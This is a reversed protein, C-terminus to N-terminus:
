KEELEVEFKFMDGRIFSITYEVIEMGMYTWRQLKLLPSGINVGLIKAMEQDAVLVSFREIAKTFSIGYDNQLVEYLSNNLLKEKSLSNMKNVPMYTKEFMVVENDAIRLRELEFITERGALNLEKLIKDEGNIKKFSIIKSKPVKGLKKMEETFSYFKLLKQKIGRFSVFTGRGQEKYLYGKQELYSLAQRVTARSLNYKECYERETPIKDNEQLNRTKIDNIIIEALQYYLPSKAKVLM